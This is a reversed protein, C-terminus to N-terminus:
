FSSYSTSYLIYSYPLTCNDVFWRLSDSGQIIADLKKQMDEIDKFLPTVQRNRITQQGSVITELLRLRLELATGSTLKAPAETSLSESGADPSREEPISKHITQSSSPSPQPPPPSSPPTSTSFIRQRQVDGLFVSGIHAMVTLRRRRGKPRSFQFEPEPVHLDCFV